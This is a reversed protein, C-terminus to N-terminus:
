AAVPVSSRAFAIRNKGARKAEYMAADAAAMLEQLDSADAPFLAIGISAGISHESLKPQNPDILSRLLRQALQALEHGDRARPAMLAFEDGGLRGLLDSERMSQAFRRAIEVLVGDGTDHGHQDNVTKFGDLDVFLLGVHSGDRRAEALALELSEKFSRRNALQTLSDRNAQEEIRSALQRRARLDWAIVLYAAVALSAVIIGTLLAGILTLSSREAARALEAKVKARLLKQIQEIRARLADMGQVGAYTGAVHLVPEFESDQKREITHQLEAVKFRVLADVKWFLQLAEPEEALAERAEVIEGGIEELARVYPRLHEERGTLLYGRQGSEAGRVSLELALLAREADRLKDAQADAALYARGSDVAFWGAAALLLGAGIFAFLIKRELSFTPHMARPGAIPQIAEKPIAKL